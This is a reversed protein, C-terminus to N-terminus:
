KKPKYSSFYNNIMNNKETQNILFYGFDIRSVINIIEEITFDFSSLYNVCQELWKYSISKLLPQCIAGYESDKKLDYVFSFINPLVNVYNNFNDNEMKPEDYIDIDILIINGNNDIMYNDPNCDLSYGNIQIIRANNLLELFVSPDANDLIKLTDLFDNLYKEKGGAREYARFAMTKGNCKEQLEYAFGDHYDIGIISPTVLGQNCLYNTSKLRIDNKKKDDCKYVLLAYEKGDISVFYCNRSNGRRDYHKDKILQRAKDIILM